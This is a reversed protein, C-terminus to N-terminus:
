VIGSQTFIHSFFFSCHFTLCLRFYYWPIVKRCDLFRDKRCIVKEAESISVVYDGGGQTLSWVNNYMASTNQTVCPEGTIAALHPSHPYHVFWEEHNFSSISFERTLTYVRLCSQLLTWYFDGYELLVFLFCSYDCALSSSIRMYFPLSVVM